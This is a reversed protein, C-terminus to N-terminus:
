DDNAVEERWTICRCNLAPIDFADGGGTAVAAYDIDYLEILPRALDGGSYYWRGGIKDQAKAIYKCVYGIAASREGYLPIATTYGLKWAPLNYVPQAGEALWQTRQAASRPKRPKGGGRLSYAGSAVLPLAANILGHFHVAGDKHYEPVLIYKLGKRRVQNDAWTNLKRIISKPDYRDVHAADLTLTVFHSFDTNSLAIDRLANRARRKARALSDAKDTEGTAERPETDWKDSLEWGAERFINLSACLYERSGDPYIKVRLNHTIDKMEMKKM